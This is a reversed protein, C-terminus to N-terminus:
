FRLSPGFGFIDPSQPSDLRTQNCQAKPIDSPPEVIDLAGALSSEEVPILYMLSLSGPYRLLWSTGQSAKHTALEPEALEPLCEILYAMMQGSGFNWILRSSICQGNSAPLYAYAYPLANGHESM